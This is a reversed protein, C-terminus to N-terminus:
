REEKRMNNKRKKQGNRKKPTFKKKHIEAKKNLIKRIRIPCITEISNMKEKKRTIKIRQGKIKNPQNARKGEKM